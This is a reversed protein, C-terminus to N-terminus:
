YRISVPEICEWLFKASVISCDSQVISMVTLGAGHWRYLIHICDPDAISEIWPSRSLDQSGTERTCGLDM